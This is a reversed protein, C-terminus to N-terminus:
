LRLFIPPPPARAGGGGGGLGGVGHDRIGSLINGSTALNELSNCFINDTLTASLETIRTPKLIQPHFSYSSLTNVFDATAPHSDYNLLNINFDGM